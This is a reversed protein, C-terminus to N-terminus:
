NATPELDSKPQGPQTKLKLLSKAYAAQMSLRVLYAQGSSRVHIGATATATTTTTTTTTQM